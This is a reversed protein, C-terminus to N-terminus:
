KSRTFRKFIQKLGPTSALAERIRWFRSNKIFELENQRAVLENRCNTLDEKTKVLENQTNVLENQYCRAYVSLELGHGLAFYFDRIIKANPEQLEALQFVAEPAEPGFMLVGLGHGHLFEFHPFLASLEQWLRWVGFDRERVNTDHFLVVARSNLKQQWTEFDHCSAEYTHYGDIHLLDISGDPFNGAAQDFTSQVLRSFGGYHSDHYERLQDLEKPGCSIAHQDGQWHDVGYCKTELGLTKVAQCFALFSDGFQVGLEVICKPQLMQVLAFAFPIHEIWASKPSISLRSPFTLCLPFDIPNFM